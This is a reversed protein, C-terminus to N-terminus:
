ERPYKVFQFVPDPYQTPRGPFLVHFLLNEFLGTSGFHAIQIQYNKPEIRSKNHGNSRVHNWAGESFSLVYNPGFFEIVQCVDPVTVIERVGNILHMERHTTTYCHVETDRIHPDLRLVGIIIDNDKSQRLGGRYCLPAINKKLSYWTGTRPFVWRKPRKKARSVKLTITRNDGQTATFKSEMAPVAVILRRKIHKLAGDALFVHLWARSVLMCRAIDALELHVCINAHIIDLLLGEM